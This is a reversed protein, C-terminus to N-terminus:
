VPNGANFNMLKFYLIFYLLHLHTFTIVYGCRFSFSALITQETDTQMTQLHIACLLLSLSLDNLKTFHTPFHLLWHFIGNAFLANPFASTLNSIYRFISHYACSYASLIVLRIDICLVCVCIWACWRMWGHLTNLVLFEDVYLCGICLYMLRRVYVRLGIAFM